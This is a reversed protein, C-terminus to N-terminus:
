DEDSDPEEVVVQQSGYDYDDSLTGLTSEVQELKFNASGPRYGYHSNSSNSLVFEPDDLDDDLDDDHANSAELKSRYEQLNTKEIAAERMKREIEMRRGELEKRSAEHDAELQVALAQAKEAVTPGGLKVPGSSVGNADRVPSTSTGTGSSFSNSSTIKGANRWEAVAAAFADHERKEDMEQESLKQLESKSSPDRDNIMKSEENDNILSSEGEGGGGGGWPNHWMGDDQGTKEQEEVAQAAMSGGRRWEMVAEMFARQEAAEDLMGDGANVGIPGGTVENSSIPQLQSWHKKNKAPRDRAEGIAMNELSSSLSDQAISTSLSTNAAHTKKSIQEKIDSDELSKSVLPTGVNLNEESRTRMKGRRLQDVSKLLVKRHGLAKINMYDLDEQSIDLLVSGTIENEKFVQVYQGFGLSELWTGVEYVGWSEVTKAISEAKTNSNKSSNRGSGQTQSKSKRSPVDQPGKYASAAINEKYNISDASRKKHKEQMDRNYMTATGRDPRASGWRTGGPRSLTADEDQQAKMREQLLRLRKEMEKADRELAQSESMKKGKGPLQGSNGFNSRSTM